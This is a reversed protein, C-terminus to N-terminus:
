HFLTRIYPLFEKLLWLVTAVVVIGNLLNRMTEQMPAKNVFWLLVGVVFVVACITIIDM